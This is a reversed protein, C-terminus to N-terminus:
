RSLDARRGVLVFLALPLAYDGSREIFQFLEQGVLPRLLETGLKWVLIFLLLGRWPKILVALGLLIEFLGFVTMLRASDVAASSVGFLGFYDYWEDKRVQLGFGGHGILLLGIGVRMVWEVATALTADLTRPAEAYEVWRHVSRGGWGVLLLLALPMAYNGGREWLEYWSEGAAPRLFATFAGWVSMYLLVIRAPWVLVLLGVSVDVTGTVYYLYNHAFEPSFGFLEFYPLWAKSQSFGAMGHGIFEFAVGIRLIWYIRTTMPATMPTAPVARMWGGPRHTTNQDTHVDTRSV